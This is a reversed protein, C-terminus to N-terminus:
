QELLIVSMIGLAIGLKNATSLQENFILVGALVILILNAITFIVGAKALLEYKLSLAWFFTGTTYLLMGVVILTTKNTLSWRKFLIDASVELIVALIILIFFLLKPTM